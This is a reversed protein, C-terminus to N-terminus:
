VSLQNISDQKESQETMFLKRCIRSCFPSGYKAFKAGNTPQYVRRKFDTKCYPCEHIDSQGITVIEDMEIYWQSGM